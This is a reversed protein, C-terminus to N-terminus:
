KKKKKKMQHDDISYLIFFLHNANNGLESRWMIIQKDNNGDFHSNHYIIHYYYM